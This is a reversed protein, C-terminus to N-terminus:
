SHFLSRRLLDLAILTLVWKFGQRFAKEPLIDLLRSGAWTGALGSLIMAGVLPLWPGLAFGMAAFVAIKALHQATMITAHTAVIARRDSLPRLFILTLPGTASILMGLAGIGTGVASWALRSQVVLTPMKIWTTALIFLAIATGFAQEPIISVFQGGLAAGPIAGVSMWIAIKWDVHRHRIAARGANSGFQVLGHVPVIAAAPLALVFASLMLMGGGLAFAATLGSTFFSLVILGFAIAPDLTPPLLFSFDFGM